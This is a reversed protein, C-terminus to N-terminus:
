FYGWKVLMTDFFLEGNLLKKIVDDPIEHDTGDYMCSTYWRNGSYKKQYEVYDDVCPGWKFHYTDGKNWVCHVPVGSITELTKIERIAPMAFVVGKLLIRKGNHSLINGDVLASAIGPLALACGGCKSVIIIEDIDPLDSFIVPIFRDKSRDLYFEDELEPRAESESPYAKNFADAGAIKLSDNPDYSNLVHVAYIRPDYNLRELLELVTDYTRQLSANGISGAIFILLKPYTPDFSGNKFGTITSMTTTSMTITSMTTTSMTTTSMTTTSMTTTSM